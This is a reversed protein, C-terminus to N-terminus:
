LAGAPHPWVRKAHQLLVEGRRLIEAEDWAVVDQFYTNLRLASQRAIEPRKAVFPGNSVSSNLEQTLLTLNGLSHLLRNRREVASEDENGLEIPPEPWAPPEWQQPLVHEVTLRGTITIAEQKSTRMARDVAELLM